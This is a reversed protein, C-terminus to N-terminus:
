IFQNLEQHCLIPIPSPIHSNHFIYSAVYKNVFGKWFQTEEKLMPFVEEKGLEPMGLLTSDKLDDKVSSVKDNTTDEMTEDRKEKGSVVEDSIDGHAQDSIKTKKFIGDNEEKRYTDEVTDTRETENIENAFAGHGKNFDLLKGLDESLKNLNENINKWSTVSEPDKFKQRDTRTATISRSFKKFRKLLTKPIFNSLLGSEIKTKKDERKQKEAKTEAVTPEKVVERTGWTVIHLNCVSYLVLLLFGTPICLFYLGGYLACTWEKPHLIAAFVFLFILFLIFIVNPHYPSEQAATIVTGVFVIMMFAYFASFIAAALIQWTPKLIFCLAFYLIAPCLAIIYASIWGVNFAIVNAGAILMLVFAPGLVTSIILTAQYTIYLININSNSEVTNKYDALFDFINAM